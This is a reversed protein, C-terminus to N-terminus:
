HTLELSPQFQPLPIKTPLPHSIPPPTHAPYRFVVVMYIAIPLLSIVKVRRTRCTFCGSRTRRHKVTETGPASKRRVRSPKTGTTMNGGEPVVFFTTLPPHDFRANGSLLGTNSNSNFSQIGASTQAASASSTTTFHTADPTIHSSSRYLGTM